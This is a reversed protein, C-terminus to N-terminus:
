TFLQGQYYTDTIQQEWLSTPLVSPPDTSAQRDALGTHTYCGAMFVGAGFWLPLGPDADVCSTTKQGESM